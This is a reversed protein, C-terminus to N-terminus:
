SIHWTSLSPCHFCFNVLFTFLTKKSIYKLQINLIYIVDEAYNMEFSKIFGFIYCLLKQQFKILGPVKTHFARFIEAVILSRLMYKSYGFAQWLKQFYHFMKKLLRSLWFFLFFITVKLFPGCLSAFVRIVIPLHHTFIVAPGFFVALKIRQNYQPRTSLFICAVLGGMSLGVLYLNEQGTVRSVYDFTASTDYVGFEHVSSDNM